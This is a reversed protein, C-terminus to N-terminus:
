KFPQPFALNFEYKLVNSDTALTLGTRVNKSPDVNNTDTPTFSYRKTLPNYSVGRGTWTEDNGSPNFLRTLNYLGYVKDFDCFKPPSTISVPAVPFIGLLVSDKRYCGTTTAKVSLYVYNGFAKGVYTGPINQLSDIRIVNGASTIANPNPPYSWVQITQSATPNSTQVSGLNYLGQDNCLAVPQPRNTITPLGNIKLSATDDKYCTRGDYTQYGRLNYLTIGATTTTLLLTDNEILRTSSINYWVFSDIYM